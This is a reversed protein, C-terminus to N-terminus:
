TSTLNVEASSQPDHLSVLARNRIEGITKPCDVVFEATRLWPRSQGNGKSLRAICIQYGSTSSFLRSMPKSFQVEEM